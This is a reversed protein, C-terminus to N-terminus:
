RATIIVPALNRTGDPGSARIQDILIKDGSRLNSVMQTAGPSLTPGNGATQKVEGRKPVLLFQYSIVNYKVGEFAFGEGAAATTVSSSFILFSALFM